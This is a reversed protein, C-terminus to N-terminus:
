QLWKQIEQLEDPSGTASRMVKGDEMWILIPVGDHGLKILVDVFGKRNAFHSPMQLVGAEQEFRKFADQTSLEDGMMQFILNIPADAHERKFENLAAAMDVCHGCTLSLFVVISKGETLSANSEWMTGQVLIEEWNMVEKAKLPHILFITAIPLILIGMQFGIKLFSRKVTLRLLIINIIILGINKMLSSLPSMAILDGMCGCNVDNGESLYLKLLYISFGILMTFTGWLVWQRNGRQQFLLLLGFSLEIGIMMRALFGSLEASFGLQNQITIDFYNVNPIMKTVASFIFFGGLLFMLLFSIFNKKKM